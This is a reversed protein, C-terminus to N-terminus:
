NESGPPPQEAQQMAKAQQTMEDRVAAVEKLYEAHLDPNHRKLLREMAGIRCELHSSHGDLANIHQGMVAFTVSTSAWTALVMHPLSGGARGTKPDTAQFGQAFMEVPDGQLSLVNPGIPYETNHSVLHGDAGFLKPTDNPM